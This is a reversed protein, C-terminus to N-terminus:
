DTTRKEDTPKSAEKETKMEVPIMSPTLGTAPHYEVIPRLQMGTETCIQTYRDMFRQQKKQLYAQQQDKSLQIAVM